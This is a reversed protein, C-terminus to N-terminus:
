AGLGQSTQSEPQARSVPERAPVSGLGVWPPLVDPGEAGWSSIQTSLFGKAPLHPDELPCSHCCKQLADGLSPLALVLEHERTSAPPSRLPLKLLTDPPRLLPVWVRCAPESPTLTPPTTAPCPHSPSLTASALWGAQRPQLEQGCHEGLLRDGLGARPVARDLRRLAGCTLALVCCLPDPLSTAGSCGKGWWVSEDWARGPGLRWRSMSPLDIRFLWGLLRLRRCLALYLAQALQM